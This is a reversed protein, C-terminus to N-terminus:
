AMFKAEIGYEAPKRGNNTLIWLVKQNVKEPAPGFGDTLYIVVPFQMKDAVKFVPRFDTGGSLDRTPNKMFRDLPIPDTTQTDCQTVFINAGTIRQIQKLESLFQNYEKDDVSGSADLAILARLGVQKRRGMTDPFRKSERMHTKRHEIRGRGTLYNKLMQRWNIQAPKYLVEIDRAIELPYSGHVTQKAAQKIMDHIVKKVTSEKVKSEQADSSEDMKGITFEEFNSSEGEDEGPGPVKFVYFGDSEEMMQQIKKDKCFEDYLDEASMDKSLKLDPFSKRAEEITFCGKPLREKRLKENVVIDCALNWIKPNRSNRRFPHLFVLHLLEHIMVEKAESKTLTDLFKQSYYLIPRTDYSVGMTGVPENKIRAMSAALSGYFPQDLITAVIIEEINRNM